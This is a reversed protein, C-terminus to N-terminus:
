FIDNELQEVSTGICKNNMKMMKVAVCVGAGLKGITLGVSFLMKTNASCYKNLYGNIEFNLIVVFWKKEIMATRDKTNNSM